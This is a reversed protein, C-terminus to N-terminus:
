MEEAASVGLVGLGNRIVQGIADALALRAATKEPQDPLLFRRDPNDNGKNWLSHFDASLTFLYFAIRHPEHAVAAAEILRPFQAAQQVLALEDKDLLTLDAKVPLTLSEAEARRHLSHIRAHAYQVYFVPNDKSAEVVKEFDFDMQADAKRTLMSFRVVDRGVESVVDALTVFNGSRKSMKVPEGGRLLHVMQVLKVDLPVKNQTLAAVAAKIRKVTGAHDAGWIDVLQDATAAKEAHYALDAGFYTYSGDSKQVPRDSDDGFKTARFLTLEVPEWDDPTEGKPAELIGKYILGEKELKDLAKQVIGAKHLAAESTFKDHHIGLLALDARIMDMMADVATERFLVLWESEPADVYRDGYKEALKKGVAILYEGPYLGEPITINEGLAERYRLHASRALTQVQQGADNIYYERTVQYGAFGLLSALADGVVAGRCHGMHMPGTPNASVYEVNVRIDKGTDSRGYANGQALINQLEQRWCDDTLRLNIFGPGAIEVSAVGELASLPAVLMEALARPAKKAAKALVMAANIALDGHTPDRPPEVAVRSRDMGAPLQGKSELADLISSLQEAFHRYLTM